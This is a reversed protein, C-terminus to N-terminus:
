SGGEKRARDMSVWIMALLYETRDVGPPVVGDWPMGLAEVGARLMDPTAPTEPAAAARRLGEAVGAEFGQRYAGRRRRAGMSKGAYLTEENGQM